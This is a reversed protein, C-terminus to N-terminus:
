LKLVGRFGRSSYYSQAGNHYVFAQGYRFDGFIAGGLTRIKDPTLLWSSTKTDFPGFRQLFRYQDESLLEIGMQAAMEIANHEPRHEKRSELGERDYCTSRRGTPSEEACDFFHYEDKEKDYMVVDPEGGTQEMENLSWLKSPNAELKLKLLSWKADKHRARNNEFRNHLTSLLLEKQVASLSKRQPM